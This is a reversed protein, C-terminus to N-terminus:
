DDSVVAGKLWSERLARGLWAAFDFGTGAEALGVGLSAGGQVAHTWDAEAEDLRHVVARWGKRSVLVQEGLNGALAARVAAFADEAEDDRLQHAHHISAIPWRSRLLHVGPMLQLRLRMPDHTELLSLSMADLLADAARENRHLALDLRACDALYPSTTVLPHTDLWAPFEVGWEGLDGCQPPQARWFDRALRKFDDASVMARVTAFAATLARDALSEANARYAELGRAARAGSERLRLDGIAEVSAEGATAFAAVLARQREAERAMFQETAM